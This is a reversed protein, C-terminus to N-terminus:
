EKKKTPTSPKPEILQFWNVNFRNNIVTGQVEAKRVANCFGDDAHADGHSDIDTGDVFYATGNIRVALHCGKGKLGFQCEGCATEVIQVKRTSDKKLPVVNTKQAMASGLVLVFGCLLFVGKM